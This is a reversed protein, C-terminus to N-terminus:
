IHEIILGSTLCTNLSWLWTKTLKFYNWWFTPCTDPLIQPSFSRASMRNSQDCIWREFKYKYKAEHKFAPTFVWHSEVFWPINRDLIIHFDLTMDSYICYNLLICEYWIRGFLVKTEAHSSPLFAAITLRRAIDSASTSFYIAEDNRVCSSTCVWLM